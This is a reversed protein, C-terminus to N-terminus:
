QCRERASGARGARVTPGNQRPSRSERVTRVAYHEKWNWGRSGSATEERRTEDGNKKEFGLVRIGFRPKGTWPSGLLNYPGAVGHVLGAGDGSGNAENGGPGGGRFHHHNGVSDPRLPRRGVPYGAAELKEPLRHDYRGHKLANLSVRAKGEPTRPGTCKQANRRNAALFAETRTPSKRLM